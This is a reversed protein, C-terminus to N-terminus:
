GASDTEVSPEPDDFAPEEYEALPELPGEPGVQAITVELDDLPLSPLVFARLRGNGFATLTRPWGSAGDRELFIRMLADGGTGLPVASLDVWVLARTYVAYAQTGEGRSLGAFAQRAGWRAPPTTSVPQIREVGGMPRTRRAGPPEPREYGERIAGARPTPDWWQAGPLVPSEPLSSALLLHLATAAMPDAGEGGSIAHVRAQRDLTVVFPSQAPRAAVTEGAVTVSFDTPLVRISVLEGSAGDLALLLRGHGELAAPAGIPAGVEATWSVQYEAPPSAPRLLRLLTPVAPPEASEQAPAAGGLTFMLLGCLIAANRAM